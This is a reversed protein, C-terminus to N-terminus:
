TYSLRKKNMGEKITKIKVMGKLTLHEKNGIIKSVICFDKFDIQKVTQLPYKELFPIIKSSIDLYNNVLFDVAPTSNRNRVRGCNLYKILSEM